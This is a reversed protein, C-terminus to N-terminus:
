ASYPIFDIDFIKKDTRKSDLGKASLAFESATKYSGGINWKQEIAAKFITLQAIAVIDSDDSDDSYVPFKLVIMCSKPLAGSKVSYKEGGDVTICYVPQITKGAMDTFFKVTTSAPTNEDGAVATVLFKGTALSAEDAIETLGAIKLSGTKVIEPISIQSDADVTYEVGFKYEDVAVNSSGEAGLALAFSDSSLKADTLEITIESGAPINALDFLSWGGKINISSGSVDVSGSKATVCHYNSNKGILVAEPADIIFGRM